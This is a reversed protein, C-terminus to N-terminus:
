KVYTRENDEFQWRNLLLSSPKFGGVQMVCLSRRRMLLLCCGFGGKVSAGGGDGM